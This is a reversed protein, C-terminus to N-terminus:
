IKVALFQFTGNKSNVKNSISLINSINIFTVYEFDNRGSQSEYGSARQKLPSVTTM